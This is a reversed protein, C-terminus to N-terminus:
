QEPGQPPISKLYTNCKWEKEQPTTGHIGFRQPSQQVMGRELRKFEDRRRSLPVDDLVGLKGNQEGGPDHNGIGHRIAHRNNREQVQGFGLHQGWSSAVPHSPNM